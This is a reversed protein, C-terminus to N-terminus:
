SKTPFLNYNQPVDTIKMKPTTSLSKEGGEAISNCLEDGSEISILCPPTIDNFKICVEDYNKASKIIIMESGTYSIAKGDRKVEFKYGSKTEDDIVLPIEGGEGKMYTEFRIDCGTSSGGPSVEFSIKYINQMSPKETEYIQITIREGEIHAYAGTAHTSFAAGEDMADMVDSKCIESTWGYEEGTPGGLLNLIREDTILWWDPEDYFMSVGSYGALNEKWKGLLNNFWNGMGGAKIQAEKREANAMSKALEKADEDDTAKYEDGYREYATYGGFINKKLYIGTGGVERYGKDNPEDLDEWENKYIIKDSKGDESYDYGFTKVEGGEDKKQWVFMKPIENGKEDQSIKTYEFEKDPLDSPNGVINKEINNIDDFGLGDGKIKVGDDSKYLTFETNSFKGTEDVKREYTGKNDGKMIVLTADNSQTFGNTTDGTVKSPDIGADSLANYTSAIDEDKVGKTKLHAYDDKDVTKGGIKVTRIGKENYEIELKNEKEGITKTIKEIEGEKTIKGDGIKGNKYWEIIGDGKYISYSTSGKRVKIATSSSGYLINDVNREAYTATEGILGDIKTGGPSTIDTKGDHKDIIGGKSTYKVKNGEPTTWVNSKTDYGAKAKWGTIKGGEIVAYRNVESSPIKKSPILEYMEVEEVGRSALQGTLQQQTNEPLALQGTLSTGSKDNSSTGSSSQTPVDQWKKALAIGERTFKGDQVSGLLVRSGKGDYAYIYNKERTYYRDKYKNAKEQSEYASIATDILDQHIGRTIGLLKIKDEDLSGDVRVTDMGSVKVMEGSIENGVVAGTVSNDEKQWFAFATLGVILVIFVFALKHNPKQYNM